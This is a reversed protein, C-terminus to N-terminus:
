INSFYTIFGSLILVLLYIEFECIIGDVLFCKEALDSSVPTSDEKLTAATSHALHLHFAHVTLRSMMPFVNYSDVVDCYDAAMSSFHSEMHDPPLRLTAATCRPQTQLAAHECEGRRVVLKM